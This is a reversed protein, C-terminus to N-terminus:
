AEGGEAKAIAARALDHAEAVSTPLGLPCHARIIGPLEDAVWQAVKLLEPAAAFLVADAHGVNEAIVETSFWAEDHTKRCVTWLNETGAVCLRPDNKEVTLNQM